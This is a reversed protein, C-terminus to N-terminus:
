YHRQVFSVLEKPLQSSQYCVGSEVIRKVALCKLSIFDGMKIFSSISMDFESHYLEVLTLNNDNALDLHAGHKVFLKILADFECKDALGKSEFRFLGENLFTNKSSDFDILTNADAGSELLYKFLKYNLSPADNEDIFKNKLRIDNKKSRCAMALFKQSSNKVQKTNTIVLRKMIDKYEENLQLNSPNSLAFDALYIILSYLRDMNENIMEFSHYSINEYDLERDVRAADINEFLCKFDVKNLSSGL